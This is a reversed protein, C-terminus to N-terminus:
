GGIEVMQRDGVNDIITTFEHKEPKKSIAKIILEKIDEDSKHSRLADKLSVSNEQGLCLILNGKATLRVRNCTKCFNNSVASIIGIQSNSNNVIFNRAPGATKSNKIPTIETTLHNKIRKLIDKEPYHQDLIKIGASGIPMTEIFRIHINKNIAFDLMNEIEDDNIDRMVVMNLKVPHMGSTIAAEIGSIVNKLKGGRTINTFRSSVLSDLSINVRNVGAVKLKKVMPALLHANTSIPIDNIGKINNLLTVLHSINKRLLPEGGTLRIKSVGLDAFITVIRAIEEYSLIEKQQCTTYHDEDRCYFCRYNCHETVSIRLYNINRKFNDILKTMILKLIGQNVAM